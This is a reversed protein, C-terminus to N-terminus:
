CAGRRFLLAPITAAMLKLDHTLTRSRIYRVDMRMWEAFTVQSRGEVQWICTLGPTVSLRQRHWGHCDDTERCPLPRPGVLSMEGRIVNWLQPLEDISTGRLLRGLKTVRPDHRIKFAPGDQENLELLSDRAQEAGCVMTRLKYITFPRGGMGSRQQKFIAPGPSSIRVLLAAVALVPLCALLALSALTVDLTRKWVPLSRIMLMDLPQGCLPAALSQNRQGALEQEEDEPSVPQPYTYVEVQYPPPSAFRAAIDGALKWAGPAPTDPLVIGIRDADLWGPTDTIRLRRKITQALQNLVAGQEHNTAPEFVLLSFSEGTRDARSREREIAMRLEDRTSLGRLHAAGGPPALRQFGVLVRQLLPMKM